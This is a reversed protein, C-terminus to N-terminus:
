ANVPAWLKPPGSPMKVGDIVVAWKQGNYCFMDGCDTEVLRATMEDVSVQTAGPEAYIWIAAVEVGIPPPDTIANRWQKQGHECLTLHAREAAEKASRRLTTVLGDISLIIQQIESM